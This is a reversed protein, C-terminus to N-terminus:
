LHLVLEVLTYFYIKQLFEKRTMIIYDCEVTLGTTISFQQRCKTHFLFHSLLIVHKMDYLKSQFVFESIAPPFLAKFYGRLIDKEM